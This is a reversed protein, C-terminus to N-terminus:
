KYVHLLQIKSLIKHVVFVTKQAIIVLLSYNLKNYKRMKVNLNFIRNIELAIQKMM